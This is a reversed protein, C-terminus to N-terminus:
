CLKSLKQNTTAITPTICPPEREMEDAAMNERSGEWGILDWEM